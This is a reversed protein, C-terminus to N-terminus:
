AYLVYRVIVILYYSSLAVLMAYIGSMFISKWKNLLEDQWGHLVIYWAWVTMILLSLSGLGIMLKQIITGLAYNITKNTSWKRVNMWPSISDVDIVFNAKDICNWENKWGAACDIDRAREDINRKFENITNANEVTPEWQLAKSTDMFNPSSNNEQNNIEDNISNYLSNNYDDITSQNNYNLEAKSLNISNQITDNRTAMAQNCADSWIWNEACVTASNKIVNLRIETVSTEAFSINSFGLWLLFIFILILKKFM